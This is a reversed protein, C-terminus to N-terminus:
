EEADDDQEEFYERGDASNHIVLPESGDEADEVRPRCWCQRLELHEITDNVPLVHIAM